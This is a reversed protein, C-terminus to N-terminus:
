FLYYSFIDSKDLNILYAVLVVIVIGPVGTGSLLEMVMAVVLKMQVELM